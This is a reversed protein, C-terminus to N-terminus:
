TSTLKALARRIALLGVSIGKIIIGSLRLTITIANVFANRIVISLRLLEIEWKYSLLITLNVGYEIWACKKWPGLKLCLEKRWRPHWDLIQLNIDSSGKDTEFDIPIESSGIKPIVIKTGVDPIKIEPVVIPQIRANQM